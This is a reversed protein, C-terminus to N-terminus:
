RNRRCPFDQSIPLRYKKHPWRAVWERIEDIDKISDMRQAHAAEIEKLGLTDLGERSLDANYRAYAFLKVM